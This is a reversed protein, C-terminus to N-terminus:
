SSCLSSITGPMPEGTRDVWGDAPSLLYQLAAQHGRGCVIGALFAQSFEIVIQSLRPLSGTCSSLMTSFSRLLRPQRSLTVFLFLIPMSPLVTWWWWSQMLVMQSLCAKWSIWRSMWGHGVRFPYRSYLVLLNPINTSRTSVSPASSSSTRLQLRSGPGTICSAFESILRM